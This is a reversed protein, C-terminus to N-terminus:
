GRAHAPEEFPTTIDAVFEECNIKGSTSVAGLGEDSKKVKKKELLEVVLAEHMVLRSKRRAREHWVCKSVTKWYPTIQKTEQQKQISPNNCVLRSFQWTNTNSESIGFDRLNKWWKLLILMFFLFFNLGNKPRRSVDTLIGVGQIVKSPLGM